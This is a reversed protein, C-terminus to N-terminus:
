HKGSENRAGREKKRQTEIWKKGRKNGREEREEIKEKLEGAPRVQKAEV